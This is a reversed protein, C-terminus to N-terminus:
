EEQCFWINTSVPLELLLALTREVAEGWTEVLAMWHRKIEAESLARVRDLRMTSVHQAVDNIKRSSADMLTGEFMDMSPRIEDWKRTKAETSGFTSLLRALVRVGVEYDSAQGDGIMTKIVLLARSVDGLSATVGDGGSRSLLLGRVLLVGKEGKIDDKLFRFARGKIGLSTDPLDANEPQCWAPHTAPLSTFAWVLGGWAAIALQKVEVRKHDFAPFLGNAFFRFDVRTYLWRDSLAILCALTIVAWVPDRSDGPEPNFAMMLHYHLPFEERSPTKYDKSPIQPKLFAHIEQSIVEHPFDSSRFKALVLGCLANCAQLRCEEENAALNTLITFLYGLFHTAFLAHQRKLLSSIAKLSDCKAQLGRQGNLAYRLASIIETKRPELIYLPLQQSQIIWYVLSVTKSANLTPLDTVSTIKIVEYFLESLERPLSHHCLTSLDITYQIDHDTMSIESLYSEDLASPKPNHSPNVSARRIDRKLARALSTAQKELPILAPVPDEAYVILPAIARIRASLVNYAETVDHCTIYEWDYDDLSGIITELPSSLYSEFMSPHSATNSHPAKPDPRTVSNPLLEM